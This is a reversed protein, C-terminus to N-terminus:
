GLWTRKRRGLKECKRDLEETWHTGWLVSIFSPRRVLPVRTGGDTQEIGEEIKEMLGHQHQKRYRYYIFHLSLPLSYYLKKLLHIVTFSISKIKNKFFVLKFVVPVLGWRWEISIWVM